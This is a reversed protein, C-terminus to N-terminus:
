HFKPEVGGRKLALYWKLRDFWHGLVAREAENRDENPKAVVQPVIPRIADTMTYRGGDVGSIEPDCVPHLGATAHAENLRDWEKRTPPPYVSVLGSPDVCRGHIIADLIHGAVTKVQIPQRGSSPAMAISQLTEGNAYRDYSLEWTAKGTKKQPKYAAFKWPSRAPIKDLIMPSENQTVGTDVKPKQQYKDVWDGLVAILSEIERSRVGASVLSSSDMKNGPPLSGVAYAISALVHEPIVSVPAMQYKTAMKTRWNEISTFLTELAEVRETKGLGRATEVYKQWKSYARIVEGDGQELEESPIKDKFASYQLEELIKQRRAEEKKELDRLYEPVPLIIAQRRNLLAQKGAPTLGYVMWSRSFGNFTGKVQKTFLFKKHVLSSFLQEFFAAPFKRPMTAHATRVKEELEAVPIRCRYAEIATRSSIAKLIQNQPQEKLSDVVNLILQAGSERFDREMDDAHTEVHHCYDCNGCNSFSPQEGFYTLLAKRRCQSKDLCYDKLSQLSELAAKRAETTLNGVYFDDQYKNFDQGTAYLVAEAAAGDRGARGIQQYYEEMTKPPGYHIIRRTDPKDIGMGFAVTAVLVTCQGTLFQAHIRQRQEPTLGAHYAGVTVAAHTVQARLAAAVYDVEKRTAVYIITSQQHPRVAPDNWQAIFDQLAAVPNSPRAARIVLRLNKRDLSQQSVLPDRLQLVQTIDNQVRPVATATLTLLPVQRLVAHQRLSSLKRFDPRFDCGWESVTHAEDIAVLAIQKHNLHLQAMRDLCTTLKEPTLYVLAFDGQWAREELHRDVQASGLYTALPKESLANLKHCQDQMLSILPSVVFAVQNAHLAPIQYCLSKGKGTAWYVSVDRKQLIARIVELQGQRFDTYGFVQNLTKRLDNETAVSANRPLSSSTTTSLSVKRKKAKQEMSDVDISALVDDMNDDFLTRSDPPCSSATSPPTTSNHQQQHQQTAKDVDFNALAADMADFEDFEGMSSTKQLALFPNTPRNQLRKGSFSLTSDVFFSVIGLSRYNIIM